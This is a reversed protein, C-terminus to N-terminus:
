IKLIEFNIKDKTVDIVAYEDRYGISGPNLIIIGDENELVQTHTHGFICMDAGKEKASFKLNYFGSKVHEKHGHTLYIIHGECKIIRMVPYHSFFDNNGCVACISHTTGYVMELYECDDAVDGCHIIHTIDKHKEIAKDMPNTQRHSDSFVLFKMFDGNKYKFCHM